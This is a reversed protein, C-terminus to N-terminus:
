VDRVPLSDTKESPLKEWALGAAAYAWARALEAQSAEGCMLTPQHSAPPRLVISKLAESRDHHLNILRLLYVPGITVSLEDSINSLDYALLHASIAVAADQLGYKGALAYADIPRYQAHFLLLDYLPRLPIAYSAPNVGYKILAELAADIEALSPKHHTYLMGYLIHFVIDLVAAREALFLPAELSVLLGAFANSSLSSLKRRHVYFVVMDFSMVTMDPFM